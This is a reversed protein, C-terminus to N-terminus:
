RPAAGFNFGKKSALSSALQRVQLARDCWRWLKRFKVPVFAEFVSILDPATSLLRSVRSHLRMILWRSASSRFM